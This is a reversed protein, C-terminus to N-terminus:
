RMDQNGISVVHSEHICGQLKIPRVSFLKRSQDPVRPESCVHQLGSYVLTWLAGFESWRMGDQTVAVDALTAKRWNKVACTGCGHTDQRRRERGFSMDAATPHPFRELKSARPVWNSGELPPM